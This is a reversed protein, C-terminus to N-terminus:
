PRPFLREFWAAFATAAASGNPQLDGSTIARGYPRGPQTRWALWTHLWAKSHHRQNFPAGMGRAETAARGAHSWTPDARPVMPTLFQELAGVNQNDPMIWAGVTVGAGTSGIWGEAPPDVPLGTVSGNLEDCIAKWRDPARKGDEDDADLVIGVRAPASQKIAVAFVALARADSGSAEVWCQESTFSRGLRPMLNIVVWKDDDGEVLLLNKRGLPQPM